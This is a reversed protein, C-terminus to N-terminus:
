KEVSEGKRYHNYDAKMYITYKFYAKSHIPQLM